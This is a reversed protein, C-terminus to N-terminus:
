VSYIYYDASSFLWFPSILSSFLSSFLHFTLFLPLSFITWGGLYHNAFFINVSKEPTYIICIIGQDHHPPPIDEPSFFLLKFICWFRPFFGKFVGKQSSLNSIKNGIKWFQRVGGGRGMWCIYSFSSSFLSSPFLAPFYLHFCQIYIEIFHNLCCLGKVGNFLNQM